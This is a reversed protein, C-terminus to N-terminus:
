NWVPPWHSACYQGGTTKFSTKINELAKLLLLKAEIKLGSMALDPSGMGM